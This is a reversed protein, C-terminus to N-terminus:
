SPDDAVRSRRSIGDSFRTELEDGTSLSRGEKVPRGDQLTISYGRGLVAHPDLAGLTRGLGELQERAQGLRHDLARELRDGLSTAEERTAALLARREWAILRSELDSLRSRSEQVRRVAGTSLRGGLSRLESQWGRMRAEPGNALLRANAQALERRGAAVRGGTAVRLRALALDLAQGDEALRRALARGLRERGEDLRMEIDSAEPVVLEGAESPTLARADAVLDSISVDIEHGVASVVPVPSAAIARALAEDNFAELDEQSGGGRGVIIVDVSGHAILRELAARVEDAAGEGQVRSPALLLDMRPFRRRVVQLVDHLAAGTPSTVLGVRRPLFPLPRKRDADLLGEAELKAKLALFAARRAGEGAPRLASVVLQYRGQPPYVTLGARAVVRQGEVLVGPPVQRAQRSWIVADVRADRDILAFYVHGSHAFTIRSLEGEVQVEGFSRELAAKARRNLELVSFPRDPERAVRGMFTARPPQRESM